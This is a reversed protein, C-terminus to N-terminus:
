RSVVNGAFEYEVVGDAATVSPDAIQTMNSGVITKGDVLELVIEADELNRFKDTDASKLTSAQIKIMGASKEQTTFMMNGTGDDLVPTKTAGSPKYEATGTKVQVNEGNITLRKIGVSAM